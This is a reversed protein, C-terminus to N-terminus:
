CWNTVEARAKPPEDARSRGPVLAEPGQQSTFTGWPGMRLARARRGTRPEVPEHRGQGLISPPLSASSSAKFRM